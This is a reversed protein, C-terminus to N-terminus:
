GKMAQALTNLRTKISNDILTSGIKVTLGGLITPDIKSKIAVDRGVRTAGRDQTEAVGAFGSVRLKASGLAILRRVRMTMLPSMGVAKALCGAMRVREAVEEPIRQRTAPM